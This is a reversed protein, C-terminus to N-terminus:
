MCISLILAIQTLLNPFLNINQFNEACFAGGELAGDCLGASYLYYRWLGADCLVAGHLGRGSLCKWLWVLMVCVLVVCVIVLGSLVLPVLDVFWHWMLWCAICLCWM